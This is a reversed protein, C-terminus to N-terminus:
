SDSHPVMNHDENIQCLRPSTRWTCGDCIGWLHIRYGTGFILGVSAQSALTVLHTRMKLPAMADPDCCNFYNFSWSFCSCVFFLKILSVSPSLLPPPIGLFATTFPSVLAMHYGGSSQARPWFPHLSLPYYVESQSWEM